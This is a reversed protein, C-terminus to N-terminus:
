HLNQQLQVRFPDTQHPDEERGGPARRNIFASTCPLLEHGKRKVFRKVPLASAHTTFFKAPMTREEKSAKSEKNGSASGAM